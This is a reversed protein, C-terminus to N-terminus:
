LSASTQIHTRQFSGGFKLGYGWMRDFSIHALWILSIQGALSWGTKWSIFGTALPLAYNHLLNYFAAEIPGPSRLYGLLAVDPFLFLLAFLGWRGPYFHQYEFCVVTLSILGEIRLLVDPRAAYFSRMPLDM